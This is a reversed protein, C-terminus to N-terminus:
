KIGALVMETVQVRSLDRTIKINVLNQEDDTAPDLSMKALDNLFSNGIEGLRNGLRKKQSDKDMDLIVFVLDSGVQGRCTVLM